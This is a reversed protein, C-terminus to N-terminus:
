KSEDIFNQYQDIFEILFAGRLKASLFATFMAIAVIIMFFCRMREEITEAEYVLYVFQSSIAMISVVIGRAHEFNFAGPNKYFGAEAFRKKIVQFIEM